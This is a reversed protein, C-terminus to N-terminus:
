SLALKGHEQLFAGAFSKVFIDRSLLYIRFAFQYHEGEYRVKIGVTEAIQNVYHRAHHGRTKSNASVLNIKASFSSLSSSKKYLNLTEAIEHFHV